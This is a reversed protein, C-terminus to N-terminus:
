IAKHIPIKPLPMWYTIDDSDIGWILDGEYVSAGSDLFDWEDLNWRAMDVSPHEFGADCVLVYTYDEPM